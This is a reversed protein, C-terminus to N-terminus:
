GGVQKKKSLISWIGAVVTALAGSLAVATADDLIGKGVLYGGVASLLTRVIGFIQAQDM